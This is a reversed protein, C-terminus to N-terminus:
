FKWDLYQQILNPHSLFTYQSMQSINPTIDVLVGCHEKGCWSLFDELLLQEKTPTIYTNSM